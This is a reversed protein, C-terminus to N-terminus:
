YWQFSPSSVALGFADRYIATMPTLPTRLWDIYDQIRQQDEPLIQGGTLLQNITHAEHGVTAGNPVSGLLRNVDVTAFRLTGDFLASAFAWRPHVATGWAQVPEPYGDPTPCASPAHGLTANLLGGVKSGTYMALNETARGMFGALPVVALAAAFFVLVPSWHLLEGLIAVPIFILLGYNVFKM